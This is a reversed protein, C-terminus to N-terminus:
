IPFLANAFCVEEGKENTRFGIHTFIDCTRDNYIFKNNKVRTMPLYNCEEVSGDENEFKVVGGKEVVPELKELESKPFEFTWEMCHKGRGNECYGHFKTREINDIVVEKMLRDKM